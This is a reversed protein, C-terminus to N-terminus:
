PLVRVNQARPGKADDVVDFQVRQGPHLTGGRPEVIASHHVFADGGSDAAIFGFGKIDNFWKVQGTQNPGPAAKQRVTSPPAPEVRRTPAPRPEVRPTPRAEARPAPRAAPAAGGAVALPDPLVPREKYENVKGPVHEIEMYRTKDLWAGDGEHWQLMALLMQMREMESLRAKAPAVNNDKLVYTEFADLYPGADSEAAAEHWGEGSFLQEYRSRRETLHLTPTIALAGMGLPKGMGLKHRYTKGEEGPLALAWWLAGLEEPRLNEFYIRAQFRVGPKLPVMRTLQDDHEREKPTAEIDPQSGKHWYLKHGRIQTEDPSTGYHALTMRNDPDHGADRDQVLYHQFTTPKPGSLTHPTIPQPQYWIGDKASQYTADTFFVRGARQKELGVGEEGTWGFLADALDPRSDTRLDGPVFDPPTAARRQGFLNAPIRFNPCHGFYLVEDRDAVYFVPAGDKLCGWKEGGWDQLAEREFRTMGAVHDRVAQAPIPLLKAKDDVPLALAHNKRKLEGGPKTELMNGSCVLVGQYPLGAEASGIRDVWLYNGRKGAAVQASFSVRHLQPHYDASSMPVYNPIDEPQIMREKVKLYAGREEHWGMDRPTKAPRVWWDDGNKELYGVLVNAAYRGMAQQYPDRLPDQTAAAVARFTFTPEKGIWRIRGYGAIEVLTRIMGRLSSGPLAPKPFGDLMEGTTAFFPAQKEKDEPKMQDPKVNGFAEYNAVTYMGRVYTPSCTELDCDIWGTLAGEHYADHDLPEQAPVMKEPLPVFNYPARAWTEVPNSHKPNM